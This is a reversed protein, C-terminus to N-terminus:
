ISVHFVKVWHALCIVRFIFQEDTTEKMAESDILNGLVNLASDYEDKFWRKNEMFWQHEPTAFGLKTYRNIISDPSIGVVAKRLVSKTIGDDMTIKEPLSSIYEICDKTAFPARNIVSNAMANRDIHHYLKPWGNRMEFRSFSRLSFFYNNQEAYPYENEKNSAILGKKVAARKAILVAICNPLPVRLLSVLLENIPSSYKYLKTYTQIATKFQKFRLGRLCDCMYAIQHKRYGCLYEDAAQGDMMVSIGNKSAQEYIKYQAYIATSSFPEDQIWLLHDLENKFGEFSPKIKINESKSKRVADNIYVREDAEAEDYYATFSKIGVDKHIEECKIERAFCAIASSDMGGSLCTGVSDISDSDIMCFRISEKLLQRYQSVAAEKNISKRKKALVQNKCNYNYRKITLEGSNLDFLLYEGAGVQYVGKFFTRHSIDKMGAWVLYDRVATIDAEANWNPIVSFEKIESAFCFFDSSKIYYVPKQSYRDRFLYLTKKCKDFIMIAYQGDIMEAFSIGYKAYLRAIIEIDSISVNSCLNLLRQLSIFNNLEGDMAFVLNGYEYPQSFFNRKSAALLRHGITGFGTVPYLAVNNPGRYFVTDLMSSVITQTDVKGSFSFFGTIASM